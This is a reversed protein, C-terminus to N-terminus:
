RSDQDSTTQAPRLGPSTRVHFEESTKKDQSKDQPQESKKGTGLSSGEGVSASHVPHEPYSAARTTQSKNSESPSLAVTAASHSFTLTTEGHALDLGPSPPESDSEWGSDNTTASIPRTTSVVKEPLLTKVAKGDKEAKKDRIVKVKSHRLASKPQSRETHVKKPQALRTFTDSDSESDSKDSGEICHRRYALLMEQFSEYQGVNEEVVGAGEAGFRVGECSTKASRQTEAPAQLEVKVGLLMPYDRQMEQQTELKRAESEKVQDEIKAEATSDTSKAVCAEDKEKVEENQTKNQLKEDEQVSMKEDGCSLRKPRSASSPRVRQRSSTPVYVNTKRYLQSSLQTEGPLQQKQHDSMVSMEPREQHQVPQQSEELRANTGHSDPVLPEHVAAPDSHTLFVSQSCPLYRPSRGATENNLYTVRDDEDTSRLAQCHPVLSKGAAQDDTDVTQRQKLASKLKDQRLEAKAAEFQMDLLDFKAMFFDEETVLERGGNSGRTDDDSDDTSLEAWMMDADLIGDDDVGSLTTRGSDQSVASVRRGKPRKASSLRSNGPNAAFTVRSGSKPRSSVSYTARAESLTALTSQQEDDDSQHSGALQVVDSSLPDNSKVTLVYSGSTPRQSTSGIINHSKLLGHKSLIQTKESFTEASKPRLDKGVKAIASKVGSVIRDSYTSASFPRTNTKAQLVKLAKAKRSQSNQSKVRREPKDVFDVPKFFKKVVQKLETDKDFPERDDVDGESGQKDETEKFVQGTHKQNSKKSGNEKSKAEKLKQYMAFRDDLKQKINSVGAKPAKSQKTSNKPRKRQMQNRGLDELYTLSAPKLGYIEQLTSARVGEASIEPKTGSISSSEQPHSSSHKVAAKKGHGSGSRGNQQSSNHTPTAGGNATLVPQQTLFTKSARNGGGHDDEPDDRDHFGSDLSRPRCSSKTKASSTASGEQKANVLQTSPVSEDAFRVAKRSASDVATKPRRSAPQVAVPKQLYSASQPRKSGPSAAAAAQQITSSNDGKDSPQFSTSGSIVSESGYNETGTTSPLAASTTAACPLVAVGAADQSTNVADDTTNLDEGPTM